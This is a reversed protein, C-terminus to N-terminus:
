FGQLHNRKKYTLHSKHGEALARFTLLNASFVLISLFGYIVSTQANIKMFPFLFYIFIAFTLFLGTFSSIRGPTKWRPYFIIALSNISVIASLTLLLIHYIEFSLPWSVGFFPSMTKLYHPFRFPMFLPPASLHTQLIFIATLFIVFLYFLKLKKLQESKKKNM